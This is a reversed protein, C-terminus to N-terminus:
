KIKITVEDSIYAVKWHLNERQLEKRLFAATSQHQQNRMIATCQNRMRRSCYFSATVCDVNAPHLLSLRRVFDAIQSSAQCMMTAVM